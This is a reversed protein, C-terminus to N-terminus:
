FQYGVSLTVAYLTIDDYKMGNKDEPGDIMTYTGKGGVYINKDMFYKAGLYLSKSLEKDKANLIDTQGLGAGVFPIFGNINNFDYYANLSYIKVNSDFNLGLGRVDQPTASSPLPDTNSIGSVETAKKLEIKNVGYSLGLRFNKNLFESVGFEVGYGIDSDYGLKGKLNEFTRGNSITGTFNKLDIDQVQTYNVQGEIYLGEFPSKNQAFSSKVFPYSLFLNTFFLIKLLNSQKILKM